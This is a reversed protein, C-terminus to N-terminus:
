GTVARTLLSASSVILLGLVVRRFREADLRSFLLEGAVIGLAVGPAGLLLLGGLEATFHGTLAYGVTAAVSTSAFSVALTARQVRPELGLGQFAAVMPPGDIGTAGYSAGAFLSVGALTATGGRLVAKRWVLVTGLVVVGAIVLMLAEAPLANLAWVGLPVGPVGCGLVVALLRRDIRRRDKVAIAISVPAALVAAVVVASVPDVLVALPPVAVLSFGFGATSRITSALLLVAFVGLLTLM